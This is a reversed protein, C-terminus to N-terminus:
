LYIGFGLISVILFRIPSSYFYVISFLVIIRSFMYFTDLWDRNILGEEPIDQGFGDELLERQENDEENVNNNNVNNNNVNNNNPANNNQTDNNVNVPQVHPISTQLQIGQASM